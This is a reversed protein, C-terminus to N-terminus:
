VEGDLQFVCLLVLCLGSGELDEAATLFEFADAVSNVQPPLIDLQLHTFPQITASAPVGATRVESRMAGGFIASALTEGGQCCVCLSSSSAIHLKRFAWSSPAPLSTMTASCPCLFTASPPICPLPYTRSAITMQQATCITSPHKSVVNLDMRHQSLFPQVAEWGAFDGLSWVVLLTKSVSAHM